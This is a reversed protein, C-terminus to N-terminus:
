STSVNLGGITPRLAVFPSTHFVRYYRLHKFFLERSLIRVNRFTLKSANIYKIKILYYNIVLTTYETSFCQRARYLRVRVYISININFM